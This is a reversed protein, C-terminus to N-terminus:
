GGLLANLSRVLHIGGIARRRIRPTTTTGM